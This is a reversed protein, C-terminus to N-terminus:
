ARPLSSPRPTPPREPNTCGEMAAIPDRGQRGATLCPLASKWLSRACCKKFDYSQFNNVALSRDQISSSFFIKSPPFYVSMTVLELCSLKTHFVKRNDVSPRPDRGRDSRQKGQSQAEKQM